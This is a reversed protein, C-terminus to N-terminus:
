TERKRAIAENVMVAFHNHRQAARLEVGLNRVEVDRQELQELCARAEDTTDPADARRWWRLRM